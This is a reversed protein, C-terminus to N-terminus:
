CMAKMSFIMQIFNGYQLNLTQQINVIKHPEISYIATDQFVPPLFWIYPM